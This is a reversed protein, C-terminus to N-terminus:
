FNLKEFLIHKDKTNNILNFNVNAKDYVPTARYPIYNIVKYEM